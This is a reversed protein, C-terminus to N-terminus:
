DISALVTKNGKKRATVQLIRDVLDRGVELHVSAGIVRLSLSVSQEVACQLQSHSSGMM